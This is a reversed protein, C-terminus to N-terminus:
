SATMQSVPFSRTVRVAPRAPPLASRSASSSSSSNREYMFSPPLTSRAPSEAPWCYVVGGPVLEVVGLALDGAVRRGRTRVRPAAQGQEAREETAVGGVVHQLVVQTAVNGHGVVTVDSAGREVRHADVVRERAERPAEVIGIKAPLVNRLDDNRAVLPMRGTSWNLCNSLQGAARYSLGPPGNSGCM